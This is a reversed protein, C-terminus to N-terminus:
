FLRGKFHQNNRKDGPKPKTGADPKEADNATADNAAAADPASEIKHRIRNYDRELGYADKVLCELRKIFTQARELLSEAEKSLGIAQQTERVKVELAKLTKYKERLNAYQERIEPAHEKFWRLAEVFDRYAQEISAADPIPPEKGRLLVSFAKYELLSNLTQKLHERDADKAGNLYYARIPELFSENLRIYKRICGSMTSFEIQKSVSRLCDNVADVVADAPKTKVSEVVLWCFRDFPQYPSHRRTLDEAANLAAGVDMAARELEERLEPLINTHTDTM